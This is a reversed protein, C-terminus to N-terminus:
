ASSAPRIARASRPGSRPSSGPTSHRRPRAGDPPGDARCRRTTATTAPPCPRTPPSSRRDGPRAGDGAELPMGSEVFRALVSSAPLLRRPGRQPPYVTVPEKLAALAMTGGVGLLVQQRMRLDPEGKYLGETLIRDDPHNSPLDADLLFLPVRGVQQRWIRAEVDRGAIPVRIRVGTEVIPMLRFDYRPYLVRTDGAETFEQIYYGHRYLLGVGVLPIGLDSSSKVHDGALVGLGGSYQQLSEHIAFESCFYAVKMTREKPKATRVFWPKREMAAVLGVRADELATLFCPDAAAASVRADDVLDLTRIPCRKTAEWLVPDLSAFPRQGIENWTWWLNMALERLRERVASPTLAASVNAPTFASM